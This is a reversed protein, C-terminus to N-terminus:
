QNDIIALIDDEKIIVDIEEDVTTGAYKNFIIKDLPKVKLPIIDGTDKNLRGEGVALVTGTKFDCEGSILIIGANTEKEYDMLEVLIKDYLPKIQM